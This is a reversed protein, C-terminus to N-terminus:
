RVTIPRREGLGRSNELGSHENGAEVDYVWCRGFPEAGLLEQVATHVGEEDFDHGALRGGPKVKPLWALIDAKVSDYDHSGDIFVFDLSGDAFIAAVQTSEGVALRYPYDAAACNIQVEQALDKAAAERLLDPQNVSGRFHDVGVIDLSKGSKDAERLLFTLSKGKWVGIEVLKGGDPVREIADRYLDQFDFWGQIEDAAPPKMGQNTWKGQGHHITEVLTTAYVPMGNAHCYRSMEWDEPKFQAVYQGDPRITIRNSIQFCFDLVGYTERHWGPHKLDVLMLGTNVLLAKDPWKTDTACFTPPLEACEDITLKRVRWGDGADIATSTEGGPEKIANVVSLVAAGTRKMEALMIDLFGRTKVELDDHHMLFYDFIGQKAYKLADAWLLNFGHALVSSVSDGPIREVGGRTALLFHSRAAELRGYGASPMVCFVRPKNPQQM